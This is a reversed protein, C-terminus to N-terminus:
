SGLYYYVEGDDGRYMRGSVAGRESLRQYEEWDDGCLSEFERIDGSVYQIFLAELEVTDNPVEGFGMDRLDRRWQLMAEATLLTPERGARTTANVWTERAADKGREAISGSYESHGGENFFQTINIEM